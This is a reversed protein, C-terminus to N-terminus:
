MRGMGLFHPLWISIQPFYLIIILCVVIAIIHPIVHLSLRELSVDALSMAVFLNVGLPPTLFAIENTVVFIIGFHIPDMGLKTVVPLLVPTLIMITALTEMFMGLIFLFGIIILSVVFWNQSIGSLINTLMMPVRYMTMLKGFVLSTGILMALPGFTEATIKL